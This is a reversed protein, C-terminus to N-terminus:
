PIQECIFDGIQSIAQQAEPVYPAFIQFFHWMGDWVDLRAAVRATKLKEELRISDDLLIEDNGVHILTPPLGDLNAFLPSTLPNSPGDLCFDPVSSCAPASWGGASQSSNGIGAVEPQIVVSSL